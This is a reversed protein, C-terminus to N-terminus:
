QKRFPGRSFRKAGIPPAKAASTVTRTPLAAAGAPDSLRVRYFQQPGAAYPDTFTRVSGDGMLTSLATWTPATLSPRHELTYNRSTAAPVTGTFNTGSKQATPFRLDAVSVSTTATSVGGRLDRVLLTM